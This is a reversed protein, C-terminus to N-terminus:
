SLLCLCTLNLGWGLHLEQLLPFLGLTLFRPISTFYVSEAM